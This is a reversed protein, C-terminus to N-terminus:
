AENNAMLLGIFICHETFMYLSIPEIDQLSSTHGIRCVIYTLMSDSATNKHLPLATEAVRLFIETM